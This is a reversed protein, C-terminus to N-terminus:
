PKRLHLKQLKTRPNQHQHPFHLTL